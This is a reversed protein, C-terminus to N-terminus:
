AGDSAAGPYPGPCRDYGLGRYAAAVSVLTAHRHWGPYSRGAFDHLGLEAEAAGAPAAGASGILARAQAHRAPPLSTLWVHGARARRGPQAGATRSVAPRGTSSPELVHVTGPRRHASSLPLPPLPAARPVDVIWDLGRADLGEIVTGADVHGGTHVVVPRRPATRALRDTLALCLGAASAHTATEPIRAKHRLQEDETWRPPLYLQWDVSHDGSDGSLFAGIALQCNVTRGSAPVFRRHVGVALRGRKPVVLPALTWARVATRETLWRVLESRVPRWQWASDNVFQQLSQPATPSPTVSAAMRRLSKKGQTTLLGQVYVGAWLRQDARALHAFFRHAVPAPAPAGPARPHAEAAYM